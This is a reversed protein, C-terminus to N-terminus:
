RYSGNLKVLQDDNEEYIMTLYDNMMLRIAKPNYNMWAKYFSVTSIDLSKGQAAYFNLLECFQSNGKQAFMQVMLTYPTTKRKRTFAQPNGERIDELYITQVEEIYEQFTTMQVTM